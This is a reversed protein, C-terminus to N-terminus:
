FSASGRKVINLIHHRLTYYEKLGDQKIQMYDVIKLDYPDDANYRALYVYNDM